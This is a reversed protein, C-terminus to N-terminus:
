EYETGTRRTLYAGSVLKAIARQGGLVDSRRDPVARVVVGERLHAWTGSITEPGDTFARVQELTFPGTFLCPVRPVGIDLEVPDLWRGDVRADFLAFRVGPAAYTLDQIGHGYVEGYLAVTGEGGALRRCAAELDYERVARWYTNNADEVLACHKAAVGKSAVLLQGEATLTVCCASGHIKETVDVHEGETFVNPYRQLSEVELWPVIDPAAFLVGSLATPVPPEWKTINLAAALDTRTLHACVLDDPTFTQPSCVLGQSLQGRLKIAKVRNRRSGALKGTLGLEELLDDPVVAQEPIYVAVDGTRYAGKPVVAQYASSGVLALELADADPHPTITLREATVTFTSM